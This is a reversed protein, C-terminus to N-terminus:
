SKQETLDTINGSLLLFYKFTQAYLPRADHKPSGCYVPGESRCLSGCALLASRAIMDFM